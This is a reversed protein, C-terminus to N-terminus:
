LTWVVTHIDSDLVTGCSPFLIHYLIELNFVAGSLLVGTNECKFIFVIYM